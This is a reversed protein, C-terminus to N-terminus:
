NIEKFFKNTFEMNRVFISNKEIIHLYDYEKNSIRPYNELLNVCVNIRLISNAKRTILNNKVAQNDPFKSELQVYLNYKIHEVYVMLNFIYLHKVTIKDPDIIELEQFKMAFVDYFDNQYIIDIFDPIALLYKPTHKQQINEIIYLINAMVDEHYTILIEDFITKKLQNIENTMNQGTTFLRYMIDQYEPFFSVIGNLAIKIDLEFDKNKENQIKTEDNENHTSM